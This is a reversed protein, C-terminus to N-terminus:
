ETQRGAGLRIVGAVKLGNMRVIAVDNMFGHAFNQTGAAAAM